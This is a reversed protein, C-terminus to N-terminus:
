SFLYNYDHIIIVGGILDLVSIEINMIEQLAESDFYSLDEQFEWELSLDILGFDECQNDGSLIIDIIIVLDLINLYDNNDADANTFSNGILFNIGLIHNVILIIDQINISNDLNADGVCQNINLSNLYDLDEQANELLNTRTCINTWLHNDSYYGYILYEENIQFNYGCAGTDLATLIIVQNQITGKWVDYVDISVEKFLNNWDEVINTVQGSFVVDASNYADEPPPPPVCDCPIMFGFMMIVIIIQQM